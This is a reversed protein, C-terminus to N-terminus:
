SLPFVTEIRVWLMAILLIAAIIVGHALLPVTQAYGARGSADLKLVHIPAGNSWSPFLRTPALMNEHWAHAM